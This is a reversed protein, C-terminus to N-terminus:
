GRGFKVKVGRIKYPKMEIEIRKGDASIGEGKVEDEILNVEVLEEVTWPVRLVARTERGEFEFVRIIHHETSDEAQKLAALMVNRPEVELFCLEKPLKGSRDEKVYGILPINLEMGRRMTEAERWDGKHPYLSYIMEHWGEDPNPDPDHSNRLLSIRLTSGDISHGYKCNNLLSFGFFSSSLDIWQLAPVEHGDAPRTKAGYPVNFTAIGDVITTPFVARIWMDHEHWDAKMEVDVRPISRYLVIDRIFTSGGLVNRVRIAARVPGRDVVEVSEADGLIWPDGIPQLYWASMGGNPDEKQVLLMNMEMGEPVFEFDSGSLKLSRIGGTKMDVDLSVIGNSMSGDDGVVPSLPDTEVKGESLSYVKYGIGPVDKAVFILAAEHSPSGEEIVQVPEREGDPGIAVVGDWGSIRYAPIRVAVLDTRKWPLSNYVVVPIGELGETDIQRSIVQLARDREGRTIGSIEAFKAHAEKYTSAIACGDMIDHFQQFCTHKWAISLADSPYPFDFARAISCWVEATFLLNESERMMRKIDGHSTYCGEFEYNMEDKLTPIKDGMEEEVLEYYREIGIGEIRPSEPDEMLKSILDVEDDTPWGGHDGRGYVFLFRKGGGAREFDLVTKKLYDASVDHMYWDWNFCLVKSGDPGEWWFIPVGRSCRCFYHYKIGAQSLIQPMQYSHGFVDPLWGVKVDVGFRERFYRKGFMMSRALAEGSPLNTDSETWNGGVLCWRGEKVREKIKGMVKPYVREFAEYAGPQSQLFFFWPYKDMLDLMRTWTSLCVQITEEWPWLWNMDIHSHVIPHVIYEKPNM